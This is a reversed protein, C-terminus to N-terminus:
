NRSSSHEGWRFKNAVSILSTPSYSKGRIIMDKIRGTIHAYGQDDIICEDGTHMWLVGNEDKRMAENTAGPNDLYGKMLAYGSTCMEGRSGRPLIRGQQDVIKASTHAMVTGLGGRKRGGPDGVDMMWAVPSLETMGYAILVSGIGMEKNLREQLPIPVMSGSALAVRVTDIRYPKSKLESLQALFMTPVGLLATCGEAAIADLTLSANFADSPLVISAGHSLTDLFGM